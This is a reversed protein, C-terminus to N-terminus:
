SRGLSKKFLAMCISKCIAEELNLAGYSFTEMLSSSVFYKLDSAPDVRIVSHVKKRLSEKLIRGIFQPDTSYENPIIIKGGRHLVEPNKFLMSSTEANFVIVEVMEDLLRGPSMRSIEEENM